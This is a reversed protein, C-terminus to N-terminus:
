NEVNVVAAPRCMELLEERYDHDEVDSLDLLKRLDRPSVGAQRNGIRSVKSGAVDSREQAMPLNSTQTGQM